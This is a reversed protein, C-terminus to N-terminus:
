WRCRLFDKSLNEKINILIRRENCKRKVNWVDGVFELSNDKQGLLGRAFLGFSLLLLDRSRKLGM